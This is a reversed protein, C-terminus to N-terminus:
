LNDITLISDLQNPKCTYIKGLNNRIKIKQGGNLVELKYEEKFKTNVKTERPILLCFASALFSFGFIFSFYYAKTEISDIFFYFAVLLNILLILNIANM